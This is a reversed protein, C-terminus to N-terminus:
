SQSVLVFSHSYSLDLLKGRSDAFNSHYHLRTAELMKSVDQVSESAKLFCDDLENFIQVLSVNRRKGDVGNSMSMAPGPGAVQKGKKLVKGGPQGGFPLPPKEAVPKDPTLKEEIIRARAEDNSSKAMTESAAARKSSEDFVKPANEERMEEVDGLTGGPINDVDFFYDWSSNGAAGWSSPPPPPPARSEEPPPPPSPPPPVEAAVGTELRARASGGKSGRTRLRGADEEEEEEEEEVDEDEEEITAESGPKGLPKSVAFEPM